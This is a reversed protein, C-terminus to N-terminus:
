GEGDAVGCGLVAFEDEADEGVVEHEEGLGCSRKLLAFPVTVLGAMLYTDNKPSEAISRAHHETPVEARKIRS